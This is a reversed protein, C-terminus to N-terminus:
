ARFRGGDNTLVHNIAHDSFEITYFPYRLTSVALSDNRWGSITADIGDITPIGGSARWGEYFTRLIQRYRYSSQDM